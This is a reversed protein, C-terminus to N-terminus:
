NFSDMVDLLHPMYGFGDMKNVSLSYHMGSCKLIVTIEYYLVFSFLAVIM